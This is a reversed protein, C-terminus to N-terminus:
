GDFGGQGGGFMDALPNDDGAGEPPGLEEDEPAPGDGLKERVEDV